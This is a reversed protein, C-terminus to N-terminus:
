KKGGKRGSVRREEGMTADVADALGVTEEEGVREGLRGVEGDVHGVVEVVVRVSVVVVVLQTLPKARVARLLSPRRQVLGNLRELSLAHLAEGRNSVAESSPVGHIQNELHTKKKEQACDFRTHAPASGAVSTARSSERRVGGEPQARIAEISGRTTAGGVQLFGDGDTDDGVGGEELDGLVDLSEVGRGSVEEPEVSELIHVDGKRGLERTKV